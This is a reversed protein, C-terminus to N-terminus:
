AVAEGLLSHLCAVLSRSQVNLYNSHQLLEGLQHLTLWRYDPPAEVDDCEVILHRHSIRLFRGGEDSLMADYRIEGAPAGLMRDLFRPRVSAHEGRYNDPNCQVTPSIEPGDSNGGEARLQVLVHLVGDFQRVVFGVVGGDAATVMPQDWRTVERGGAEVEVGVVEFFRGDEHALRDHVGRWGALDGLPVRAASSYHEARTRTIWSAIEARSHVSGQDAHCSRRLAAQFGCGQEGVETLRPSAYPLCALVSRTEMNVLDDVKMLEAVQGLTLWYFNDFVEIDDFVEIVVNRNRKGLFWSGHESQRVDTLTRHPLQAPGLFRDLYPIATGGHVRSYNSRTAQVTPSLQIGNRNGPEAKNQLLFHLVGDIEKAIIGLLGVEPQVVIPQEWSRTPGPGFLEMHRGEVTFFRGSRHRIVSGDADTTWDTLAALPKIRAHAFMRAADTRLARWYTDLGMVEGPSAASAALRAAIAEHTERLLTLV